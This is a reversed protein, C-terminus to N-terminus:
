ILEDDDDDDDGNNDSVVFSCNESLHDLFNELFISVKTISNFYLSHM